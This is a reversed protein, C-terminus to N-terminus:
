TLETLDFFPQHPAIVACDIAHESREAEAALMLAFPSAARASAHFLFKIFCSVHV